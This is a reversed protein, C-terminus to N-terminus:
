TSIWTAVEVVTEQIHLNLLLFVYKSIKIKLMPQTSSPFKLIFGTNIVTLLTTGSGHRFPLSFHNTFSEVKCAIQLVNIWNTVFQSSKSIYIKIGWITKHGKYHGCVCDEQTNVKYWTPINLQAEQKEKCTFHKCYYFVYYFRHCKLTTKVLAYLNLSIYGM